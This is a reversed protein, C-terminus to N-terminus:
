VGIAAKLIEVGQDLEAKSTTLPPMILIIKKGDSKIHLGNEFTKQLVSKLKSTVSNGLHTLEIGIELGIGRIESIFESQKFEANLRNMLYKGNEYALKDTKLEKHRHLTAIAASCAIPTWGFTSTLNAEIATSEALNKTMVVAGMAAGGNTIAKAFIIMDPVVAVYECGFMKGLRGFGTGVEDFILLTGYKKTLERAVQVFGEPMVYASGWGTIIGPEIILAAVDEEILAQELDATLKKINTTYEQGDDDIGRYNLQIFDPVFPKIALRIEPRVGIALSAFLQGHYSDSFGLIKKRRTASRAIKIAMEVAETGGTARCCANLDNPLLSTLLEAYEEQIPDSTWMPAYVNKQAQQVIAESVAPDNWGLNTVNWGSTFDLYEKGTEDWIKSGKAQTLQFQHKSFANYVIHNKIMAKRKGHTDIQQM